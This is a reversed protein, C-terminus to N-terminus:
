LCRRQRRLQQLEGDICVFSKQGRVLWTGGGGEADRRSAADDFPSARVETPEPEALRAEFPGGVMWEERVDM